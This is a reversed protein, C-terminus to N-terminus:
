HRKLAFIGARISSAFRDQSAFIAGPHAVDSFAEARHRRPSRVISSLSQNGAEVLDTGLTRKQGLASM